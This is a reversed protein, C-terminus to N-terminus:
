IADLDDCLENPDLHFLLLNGDWGDEGTCVVISSEAIPEALARNCYITSQILAWLGKLDETGFTFNFYRMKDFGDDFQHNRILSTMEALAEFAARVQEMNLGLAREPQIQVRLEKMLSRAERAGCLM